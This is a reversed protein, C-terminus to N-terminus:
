HRVGKRRETSGGSKTGTVRLARRLDEKSFQIYHDQAVSQRKHGLVASIVDSGVGGLAMTTATTSRLSHATYEQVVEEPWDLGVAEARLADRLKETITGTSWVRGTWPQSAKGSVKRFVPGKAPAIDLFERLINSVPTGDDLREPMVKWRTLADAKGKLKVRRGQKDVSPFFINLGNARGNPLRNEKVYKKQLMVAEQPRGGTGRLFAICAAMAFSSIPPRKGKMSGQTGRRLFNIVRSLAEHDLPPHPTSKEASAIIKKIFRKTKPQEPSQHRDDWPPPGACKAAYISNIHSQVAKLTAQRLGQRETFFLRAARAASIQTGHQDVCDMFIPPLAGEFDTGEVLRGNFEKVQRIVSERVAVTAKSYLGRHLDAEENQLQKLSRPQRRRGGRAGSPAQSM